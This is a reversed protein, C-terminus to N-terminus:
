KEYFGLMELHTRARETLDDGRSIVEIVGRDEGSLQLCEEHILRGSEKNITYGTEYYVKNNCHKCIDLLDMLMIISGIGTRFGAM